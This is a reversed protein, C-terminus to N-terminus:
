ISHERMTPRAAHSRLRRRMASQDVMFAGWGGVLLAAGAMAAGAGLEASRSPAIHEIAKTLPEVHVTIRQDGSVEALAQESLAITQISSLIDSQQQQVWEQTRGVIEIDITASGFSNSWQTGDNRLSVTVAERVGAGYLPADARSYFRTAPRGPTVQAAVAGAFAILSEEGSGNQPMLATTDPLTFVVATKTTFIGGDRAFVVTLVAAVALAAVVIYWRRLILGLFERLTM